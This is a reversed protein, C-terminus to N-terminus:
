AHKPTLQPKQLSMTTKRTSNVERKGEFVVPKPYDSNEAKLVELNLELRSRTRNVAFLHSSHM